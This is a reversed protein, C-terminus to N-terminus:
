TCCNGVHRIKSEITQVITQTDVLGDFTAYAQDLDQSTNLRHRIALVTLSAALAAKIGPETDEIVVACTPPTCLLQLALLYADPAPKKRVVDEASVRVQFFGVLGTKELIFELVQVHESTVVALSYGREVLNWLLNMVGPAIKLGSKLQEQYLKQYLEAYKKLDIDIKGAAIFASAVAELHQGIVKEYLSPPAYGGFAKVTDAHTKAKLSETLVLVGDLDFIVARQNKM